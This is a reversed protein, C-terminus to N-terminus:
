LSPRVSATYGVAALARIVAQPDVDGQVVGSGAQHDFEASQVGALAAVAAKAKAACGGCKMGKVSFYAEGGAM